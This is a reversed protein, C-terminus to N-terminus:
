TCSLVACACPVNGCGDCPAEPPWDADLVELQAGPPPTWDDMLQAAERQMEKNFVGNPVAVHRKTPVGAETLMAERESALAVEDIPNFANLDHRLVKRMDRALRPDKDSALDAIFDIFREIIAREAKATRLKDHEPYMKRPRTPKSM